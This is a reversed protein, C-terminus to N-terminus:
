HHARHGRKELHKLPALYTRARIEEAEDLRNLAAGAKTLETLMAPSLQTYIQSTKIDNHGLMSMIILIKDQYDKGMESRLVSFATGHRMWHTSFSENAGIRRTANKFQKSANRLSWQFANVTLFAPKNADDIDWGQALRYEKSAHYRKIRKLVARSILTIREKVDGASGKVGRVYMPIFEHNESFSSLEPVDSARLNILESIRLGTDYQCHFLCRECENKLGNLVDVILNTPIFKPSKPTSGKVIGKLMGDRGYPSDMQSRRQAGEKTTLWLLFEKVATERQRLTKRSKAGAAKMYRIWSLLDDRTLNAINQEIDLRSYPPRTEIWRCLYTLAKGYQEVTGRSISINTQLNLKSLWEHMSRVIVGYSDVVSYIKELNNNVAARLELSENMSHVTIPEKPPFIQILRATSNHAQVSLCGLLGVPVEPPMGM